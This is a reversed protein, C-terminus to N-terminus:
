TIMSNKLKHGLATPYADSSSECASDRLQLTLVHLLLEESSALSTCLLFRNHFEICPVVFMNKNKEKINWVVEKTEKCTGLGDVICNNKCRSM